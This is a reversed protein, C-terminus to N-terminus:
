NGKTGHGENSHKKKKAQERSTGVTEGGQCDNNHENSDRTDDDAPVELM